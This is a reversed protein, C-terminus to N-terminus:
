GIFHLCQPLKSFSILSSPPRSHMTASQGRQILTQAHFNAFGDLARKAALRGLHRNVRAHRALAERRIALHAAARELHRQFALRAFDEAHVYGAVSGFHNSSRTKM